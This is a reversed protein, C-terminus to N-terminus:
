PQSEETKVTTDLGKVYRVAADRDRFTVTRVGVGDNDGLYKDTSIDPLRPDHRVTLRLLVSSDDSAKRWDDVGVKAAIGFLAGIFVGFLVPFTHDRM